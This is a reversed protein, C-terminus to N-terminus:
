VHQSNINQRARDNTVPAYPTRKAMRPPVGTTEKSKQSLPFASLTCCTACGIGPRLGTRRCRDCLTGLWGPRQTSFSHFVFKSAMNLLLCRLPAPPSQAQVDTASATRLAPGHLLPRPENEPPALRAASFEHSHSGVGSTTTRPTSKTRGSRLLSRCWGLALKPGRSTESASKGQPPVSRKM